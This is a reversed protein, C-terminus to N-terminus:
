DESMRRRGRGMGGGRGMGRGKGRGMGMGPGTGDKRFRELAERATGSGADNVVIGAARLGEDANPGVSGTLLVNVNKDALMKAAQIGAGSMANRNDANDVVEISEDQSNVLLIYQARGFRPDVQADLEPGVATIAIKM